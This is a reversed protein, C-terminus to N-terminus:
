IGEGRKLGEVLCQNFYRSVSPSMEGCERDFEDQEMQREHKARIRKRDLWGPDPILLKLKGEGVLVDNSRYSLFEAESMMISTQPLQLVASRDLGLRVVAHLACPITVTSVRFATWGDM